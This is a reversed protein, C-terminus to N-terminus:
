RRPSRRLGLGVGLVVTVILGFVLLGGPVASDGPRAPEPDPQTGTVPDASTDTDVDGSEAEWFSDAVPVRLIPEGTGESSLLVTRDDEDDVTLGEGQNQSPLSTRALLSVRGQSTSADPLPDLIVLTSYARLLVRSDSLVWGDTALSLGVDGVRQLTGTRVTGPDTGAPWVSEPVQFITGGLLGKTVIYLLGSDPDALLVEADAARDPYRLRLIATPILQTDELSEPEPVLVIEIQERVAENDGIDGIALLDTGDPARVPALAEWDVNAVGNIWVTAATDGDTGIAYLAASNGSDNITWLIGPHEGSAVLGSSETIRPDRVTRDTYDETGTTEALVSDAPVIVAGLALALGAVLVIPHSTWRRHRLARIVTV